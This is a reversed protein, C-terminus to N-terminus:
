LKGTFLGLSSLDDGLFEHAMGLSMLGFVYDLFADESEEFWNNKELLSKHWELAADNEFQYSCDSEIAQNFSLSVLDYDSIDTM